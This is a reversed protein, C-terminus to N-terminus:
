RRLFYPKGPLRWAIDFSPIGGSRDYRVLAVPSKEPKPVIKAVFRPHFGATLQQTVCKIEAYGM